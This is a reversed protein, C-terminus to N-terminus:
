PGTSSVSPEALRIGDIGRARRLLNDFHSRTDRDMSGAIALRVLGEIAHDIRGEAEARLADARMVAHQERAYETIHRGVQDILKSELEQRLDQDSPVPSPPAKASSPCRGPQAAHTQWSRAAELVRPGHVVVRGSPEQVSLNVSLRGTITHQEASYGHSCIRDVAVMRPTSRMRDLARSRDQEASHVRDRVSTWEDRAQMLRRRESELTRRAQELRRQHSELRGRESSCRGKGHENRQRCVELDRRARDLESEERTVRLEAEDVDRQHRHVDSEVRSGDQELNAVQREADALLREAHDHEPNPHHDVGCVYDCSLQDSRRDRHFSMQLASGSVILSSGPNPQESLEFAIAPDLAAALRSASLVDSVRPQQPEESLLLAVHLTVERRLASFAKTLRERAHPFTPVFDLCAALEVIANGALGQQFFAEAREFRQQALTQKVQSAIAQAAAHHPAVELVISALELARQPDGQTAAASAHQVASEVIANFEQQHPLHDPALAVAERAFRLAQFFDQRGAMVRAQAMRHDAQKQRAQRLMVAARPDGPDLRTAEEYAQAASDWMGARAYQDGRKMAHSFASGCGSALLTFLLLLLLFPARFRRLAGPATM